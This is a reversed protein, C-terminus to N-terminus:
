CGIIKWFVWKTFPGRVELTESNKTAISSKKEEV